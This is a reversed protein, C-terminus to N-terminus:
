HPSHAWKRKWNISTVQTM